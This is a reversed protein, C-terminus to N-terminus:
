STRHHERCGFALVPLVGCYLVFCHVFWQFVGVVDVVVFGSLREAGGVGAAGFEDESLGNLDDDSM